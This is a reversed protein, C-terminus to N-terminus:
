NMFCLNPAHKLENIKEQIYPSSRAFFDQHQNKYEEIIEPTLFDIEIKNFNPHELLYVLMQPAKDGTIIQTLALDLYNLIKPDNKQFHNDLLLRFSRSRNSQLAELLFSFNESLTFYNFAQAVARLEDVEIGQSIANRLVRKDMIAFNFKEVLRTALENKNNAYLYYCADSHRYTFLEWHTWNTLIFDIYFQNPHSVARVIIQDMYPFVEPLAQFITKFKEPENVSIFRLIENLLKSNQPSFISVLM